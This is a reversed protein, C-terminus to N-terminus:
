SRNSKDSLRVGEVSVTGDAHLTVRRLERYRCGESPLRCFVDNFDPAHGSKGRLRRQVESGAASVIFDAVELGPENASKPMFWHEVPLAQATVISALQGFCRKVVPDARDSSELIIWVRRCPVLAAIAEIEKALQGMVPVCPHMNAPVWVSKTTTAAVRAFSRDEFFASIAAFSEAKPNATVDSGHLPTDPDGNIAQRVERWKTKVHEYALGTVVCGGLGYYGQNGAFTEHGTDDVFVLLDDVRPKIEEYREAEPATSLATPRGRKRRIAELKARPAVACRVITEVMWEAAAKIQREPL